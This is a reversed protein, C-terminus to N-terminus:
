ALIWAVASRGSRGLKSWGSGKIRGMLQLERRRPRQTNAGIQLDAQMEEDTAGQPHQGLYALIKKHLPGIKGEIATAAAVSTPSHHQAPAHGGYTYPTDGLLDKMSAM